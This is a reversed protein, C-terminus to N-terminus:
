VSYNLGYRTKKFSNQNRQRQLMWQDIHHKQGDNEESVSVAEKYNKLYLGSNKKGM